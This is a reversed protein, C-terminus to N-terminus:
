KTTLRENMWAIAEDLHAFYFEADHRGPRLHDDSPYLTMGLTKALKGFEHIQDDINFNDNDGVLYWCHVGSLDPKRDRLRDLPNGERVREWMPKDEQWVPGPTKDSDFVPFLYMKENQAKTKMTDGHVLPREPVFETLPLYCEPRYPALRDGDCSYRLDVAPYFAAVNPLRRPDDIMLNVAQAGGMSGGIIVTQSPESSVRYERLILPLLEQWFYDEFRGLNSNIGWSGGTDWYDTTMYVLANGSVSFDPMATVVKPLRGEANAKDLGAVFFGFSHLALQGWGHLAVILPYPAAYEDYGAPLHVLLHRPAPVLESPMGPRCEVATGTVLRGIKFDPDLDGAECGHDMYAILRGPGDYRILPTLKPVLWAQDPVWTPQNRLLFWRLFAERLGFNVGFVRTVILLLALLLFPTLCGILWKRKKKRPAPAVTPTSDSVDTM